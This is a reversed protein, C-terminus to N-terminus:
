SDDHQGRAQGRNDRGTAPRERPTPIAAWRRPRVISVKTFKLARSATTGVDKLRHLNGLLQVGQQLALDAV